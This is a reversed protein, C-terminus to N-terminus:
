KAYMIKTMTTSKHFRLSYRDDGGGLYQGFDRVPYMHGKSAKPVLTHLAARVDAVTCGSALQKPKVVKIHGKITIIYWSNTCLVDTVVIQLVRDKEKEFYSDLDAQVQQRFMFGNLYTYIDRRAETDLPPAKAGNKVIHVRTRIVFPQGHVVLQNSQNSQNSQKAGM